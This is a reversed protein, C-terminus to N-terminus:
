QKREKNNKLRIEVGAKETLFQEAKEKNELQYAVNPEIGLLRASLIDSHWGTEDHVISIGSILAGDYFVRYIAVM